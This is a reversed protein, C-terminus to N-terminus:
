AGQEPKFIYSGKKLDQIYADIMEERKQARLRQDIDASVDEYKLRSAGQLEEVKLLRSGKDDTLLPAISGAAIGAISTKLDPALDAEDIWGLDGKNTKSPADSEAEAVAGFDEGGTTVRALAAEAMRQAEERGRGDASYFIERLHVKPKTDFDTLHSSYYNHLEEETVEVKGEIEQAILQQKVLRERALAKWSELTFGEAALAQGLEEDTKINNEKKLRDLIEQAQADVDFNRSRAEQLLLTEEILQDLIRPRAEEFKQRLEEGSFRTQLTRYVTSETEQLQSRTIADGNVVAVIEEVMREEGWVIAPLFLAVAMVKKM